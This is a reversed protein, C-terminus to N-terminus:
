GMVGESKWFCVEWELWEDISGVMCVCVCLGQSAVLLGCTVSTQIHPSSLLSYQIVPIIYKDNKRMNGRAGVRWGKVRTEFDVGDM